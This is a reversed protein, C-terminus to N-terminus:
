LCCVFGTSDDWVLSCMDDITLFLRAGGAAALEMVLEGVNWVAALPPKSRLAVLDWPDWFVVVTLSLDHM